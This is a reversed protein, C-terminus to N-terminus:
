TLARPDRHLMGEGPTSRAGVEGALPSPYAEANGFRM